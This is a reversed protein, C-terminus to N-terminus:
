FTVATALLAAVTQVGTNCFQLVQRAACKSDATGFELTQIARPAYFPNASM